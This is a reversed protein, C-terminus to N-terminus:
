AASRYEGTKRNRWRGDNWEYNRGPPKLAIERVTCPFEGDLIPAHIDSRTSYRLRVKTGDKSIEWHHIWIVQGSFSDNPLLAFSEVLTPEFTMQYSYLTIENGVISHRESNM